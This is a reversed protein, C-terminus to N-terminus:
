CSARSGACPREGRRAVHDAPGKGDALFRDVRALRLQTVSPDPGDAGERGTRYWSGRASSPWAPSAPWPSPIGVLAFEFMGLAEEGGSLRRTESGLILNPTTSILTLTGTVALAVPISLATAELPVLKTIFLVMAVVLTAVAGLGPSRGPPRLPASPRLSIRGEAPGRTPRRSTWSPRRGPARPPGPAVSLARGPTVPEAPAGRARAATRRAAAGAHVESASGGWAGLARRRALLLEGAERIV